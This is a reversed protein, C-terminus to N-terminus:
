NKSSEKENFLKKWWNARGENIIKLDYNEKVTLCANEGVIKGEDGLALDIADLWLALREKPTIFVNHSNHSLEFRRYPAVDSAVCPISLASFEQIKVESKNRNFANDVLPVLAVDVVCQAQIYNVYKMWDITILNPFHESRFGIARLWDLHSCLVVTVNGRTMLERIAPFILELDQHHTMSGFWGVVKNGEPIKYATRLIKKINEKKFIYNEFDIANLFVETKKQQRLSEKLEPTSVHIYDALRICEKFCAIKNGEKMERWVPNSPQLITLDDDSDVIVKKGARKFEKIFDVMIQDVPQHVLVADYDFATNMDSETLTFEIGEVKLRAYPSQIRYENRGAILIKKVM